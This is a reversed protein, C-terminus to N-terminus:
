PKLKISIQPKSSRKGKLIVSAKGDELRYEEFIEKGHPASELMKHFDALIGPMITNFVHLGKGPGYINELQKIIEEM